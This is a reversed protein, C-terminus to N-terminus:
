RVARDARQWAQFMLVSWLAQTADERGALHATWRALIPAPALLGSEALARPSLLDEAWDRLDGRLWAGVPIAFGAKPRDVLERPVHRYLARRLIHKGGGAQFKMALPIRAALAAVTPDLFPVRTELSVAMAARDVKTLIDGVMYGLADALMLRTPPPLGAGWAAGALMPGAFPHAVPVPSARGQWEDMFLAYLQELSGAGAMRQLARRIKHGLFPPRPGRAGIGLAANWLAPPLMAGAGAAMRGLPSPLMQARRWLAPLARHRNYGGFLEDGADGTLVVTVAERAFRSVILTPIQSSDGFPEDYIGGLLPIVAQAEAATVRLEHHDTGLHAAVARAHPSEDFAADTFGIAYTKVRSSSARTALATVLSSDIGGSLFVGVPVDAALQRAIAGGLADELQDLADQPDSLPEDNGAHVVAAYDYYRTQAAPDLKQGPAIRLWSGPRVQGIGQWISQGQGVHGVALMHRLADGDIQGAFGPLGRLAKLESAFAIKGGIEGVYLPKEGFRDRALILHGRAQDWLALAFMGEARVLTREIGWAAIAALLTETDSHGRWPPAQGARELEGRLATHNYIEGNYCLVLAGDASTMPQHGAPSLDVIALRRHGFVARGDASRWLGADDPGRHRLRLTMGEVLVPDVAGASVLGAIGCM